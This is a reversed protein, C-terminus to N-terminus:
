SHQLVSCVLSELDLASCIGELITIKAGLHGGQLIFSRLKLIFLLSFQRLVFLLLFCRFFFRLDKDEFCSWMGDTMLACVFFHASRIRHAYRQCM